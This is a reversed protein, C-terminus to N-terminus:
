LIQWQVCIRLRVSTIQVKSLFGDTGM